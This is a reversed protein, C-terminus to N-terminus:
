NVTPNFYTDAMACLSEFQANKSLNRQLNDVTTIESDVYGLQQLAIKTVSRATPETSVMSQYLKTAAKYDRLSMEYKFIKTVCLCHQKSKGSEICSNTLNIDYRSTAADRASLPENVSTAALAMSQETKFGSSIALFSALFVFSLFLKLLSM